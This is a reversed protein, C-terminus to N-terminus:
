KCIMGYNIPPATTIEGVDIIVAMQPKKHKASKHKKPLEKGDEAPEAKEDDSRDHPNKSKASSLAVLCFVVTLLLTLTTKMM